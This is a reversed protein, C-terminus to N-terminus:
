LLVAVALVDLHEQAVARVRRDPALVALGREVQHGPPAVLGVEVQQGPLAGRGALLASSAGARWAWLGASIAPRAAREGRRRPVRRGAFRATRGEQGTEQGPACKPLLIVVVLNSGWGALSPTMSSRSMEPSLWM